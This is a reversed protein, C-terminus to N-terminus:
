LIVRFILAILLLHAPYFFYYLWKNLQRGRTGNYAATIIFAIIGNGEVGFGYNIIFSGLGDWSEPVFLNKLSLAVREVGLSAAEQGSLVASPNRYIYQETGMVILFPIFAFLVSKINDFRFIYLLLIFLIGAFGYDSHIIHCFLMPVLLSVYMAIGQIKKGENFLTGAKEYITLATVGMALTFYVNQMSWIQMNWESPKGFVAFDFPFESILAFSFLSLIYKKKSKTHMFGQVCLFAFLVFAMRGIVSSGLFYVLSDKFEPKGIRIMYPRFGVQILHDCVMAAMAIYKIATGSLGPKRETITMNTKGKPSYTTLLISDYIWIIIFQKM